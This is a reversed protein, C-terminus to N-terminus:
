ISKSLRAWATKQPEQWPSGVAGGLPVKLGARAVTRLITSSNWAAPHNFGVVRAGGADAVLADLRSRLVVGKGPATPLVPQSLPLRQILAEGGFTGHYM